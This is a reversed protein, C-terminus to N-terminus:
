VLQLLISKVFTKHSTEETLFDNYIICFEILSIAIHHWVDELFTFFEIVLLTELYEYNKAGIPGLSFHLVSALGM